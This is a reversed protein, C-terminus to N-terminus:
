PDSRYRFLICHNAYRRFELNFGNHLNASGRDMRLTAHGAVLAIYGRTQAESIRTAERAMEQTALLTRWVFFVGLFTIIAIWVTVILMGLAWVAMDQQAKLDYESQKVGGDVSVNNTLCTLWDFIGSEAMVARCANPSHQSAQAEYEAAAIGENTRDQKYVLVADISLWLAGLIVALGITVAFMWARFPM